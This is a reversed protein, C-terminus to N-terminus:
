VVGGLGLELSVLIRELLGAAADLGEGSGGGANIARLRAQLYAEMNALSETDDPDMTAWGAANAYVTFEAESASGDGAAAEIVTV